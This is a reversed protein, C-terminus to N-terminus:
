EDKLGGYRRHRSDFERLCEIFADRRFDPWMTKTFVLESYALRYLMFNSIREEGSTRILLDIDPVDPNYLYRAFLRETLDSTEKSGEKVEEAFAKAARVIEDRGGYNLCINMTHVRNGKTMEVAEMCVKRTKERIRGLDGSILIRGGRDKIYPLDRRFFEELYDMLHDIEDEPRNWNETSFAFYSAFPIHFELCTDFIERLRLCAERHGFYRALGRAKAWRGNGDMIFAVHDLKKSLEFDGM